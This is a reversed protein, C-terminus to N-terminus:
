TLIARSGSPNRRLNLRNFIKFAVCSVRFLTNQLFQCLLAFPSMIRTPFGAGQQCNLAYFKMRIETSIDCHM